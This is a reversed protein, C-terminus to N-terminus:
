INKSTWKNFYIIMTLASNLPIKNDCSSTSKIKTHKIKQFEPLTSTDKEILKCMELTFLNHRINPQCIPEGFSMLRAWMCFLAQSRRRWRKARSTNFAQIGVHWSRRVAKLFSECSSLMSMNGTSRQGVLFSAGGWLPTPQCKGLSQYKLHGAPAAPRKSEMRPLQACQQTEFLLVRGCAIIHSATFLLGGFEAHTSARSLCSLHYLETMRNTYACLRFVCVCVGLRRSLWILDLLVGYVCPSSYILAPERARARVGRRGAVCVVFVWSLM